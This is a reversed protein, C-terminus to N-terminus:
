SATAYEGPHAATYADLVDRPISGRDAVQHGNDKAWTRIRRLQERDPRPSTTPAPPTSTGTKAERLCARAAALEAELHAIKQEAETVAHEKDRETALRNLSERVRLARNRIGATPHQGAWDLLEQLDTEPLSVPAETPETPETPETTTHTDHVTDGNTPDTLLPLLTTLDDEGAPLGLQDLLLILDEKSDANRAVTHAAAAALQDPLPSALPITEASALINEPLM